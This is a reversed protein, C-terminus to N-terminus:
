IIYISHLGMDIGILVSMTFIYVNQQGHTGPPYHDAAPVDGGLGDCSSGPVLRAGSGGPAVTDTGAPSDRTGRGLAGRVGPM